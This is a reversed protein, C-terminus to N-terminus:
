GQCRNQCRRWGKRRHLHYHHLRHFRYGRSLQYNFLFAFARLLLSYNSCPFCSHFSFDTQKTLETNM